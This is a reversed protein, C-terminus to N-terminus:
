DTDRLIAAAFGGIMQHLTRVSREVFGLAGPAVAHRRLLLLVDNGRLRSGLVTTDRARGRGERGQDPNVRVADPQLAPIPWFCCNAELM